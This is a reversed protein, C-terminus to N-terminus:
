SRRGLVYQNKKEADYRLFATTLRSRAEMPSMKGNLEIVHRPKPRQQEQRMEYERQRIYREEEERQRQEHYREELEREEQERKQDIRLQEIEKIEKYKRVRDTYRPHWSIWLATGKNISKCFFDQERLKDQLWRLASNQKYMSNMEYLPIKMPIEFVIHQSRETVHEVSDAMLAHQAHIADMVETHLTHLFTNCQAQLLDSQSQLSQLVPLETM